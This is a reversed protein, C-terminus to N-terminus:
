SLDYELKKGFGLRNDTFKLYEVHLSWLKPKLALSFPYTKLYLMSEEKTAKKLKGRIQLGQLKGVEKTELHINASCIPNQLANQMHLTKEDSAFIFIFKDENFAYFCSSCHPVDDKCTCLSLVHHKKVFSYVKKDIM